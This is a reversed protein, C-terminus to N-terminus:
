QKKSEKLWAKAEEINRFVMLNEPSNYAIAEYIRAIGFPLDEPAYVAVKVDYIDHKEYVERSYNALRRMDYSTIKSLNAKSFDVLENQGPIWEEGEFFDKAAGLMEEISLIGVYRSIFFNGALDVSFTIPM